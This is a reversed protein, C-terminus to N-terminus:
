VQNAGKGGLVRQMDKVGNISESTIEKPFSEMYYTTDMNASGIVVINSM